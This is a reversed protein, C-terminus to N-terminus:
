PTLWGQYHVVQGVVPLSIDVDFNFKGNAGHEQAAICPLLFRPLPIGLVDGGRMRLHLTGNREVVAMAFSLLGFKEVMLGHYRGKGKFQQTVFQAEGFRRTWIERDGVFEFDVRVDVDKGRAPFGIVFRALRALVGDSGSVDAKGKVSFAKSGSHMDQIPQALRGFSEDMVAQYNTEGDVLERVGTKIGHRELLPTYDALELDRHGSRSGAAPIQGALVRRVVAEAAMSPILPGGEGEALLHWSRREGAQGTVEVIMGGRHEGWRVTNVVWNMLPALPLLSGLVGIKVLGAALWLLRHMIAPTPGAGMWISQAEPREWTLIKLDPVETLAFRIPRLPVEGPVNVVMFRSDWFGARKVWAGNELVDVPKGSYSAIARIVNMGVRAYPSPAIGATIAEINKVDLMRVVAATLVPFSSMGSLVYVGAAKAEADFASIGEVFDAGDALDIYNCKAQICNRVLRYPDDGYVQFPGSADVVLDPKLDHLAQGDGNRDFGLAELKAAAIRAKIFSQAQVINRGAVYVHLGKDGALLDVLRGGFTGYGGVILIKM